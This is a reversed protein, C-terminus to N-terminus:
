KVMIEYCVAQNKGNQKAHYMANDAMDIMKEYRKNDTTYGLSVTVVGSPTDDRLIQQDRVLQVLEQAIQDAPKEGSFRIGLMEEGGYRYFIMDNKIGYDNLAMGIRKLCEDGYTHGYRDNLRKFNDIDMMFLATIPQRRGSLVDQFMEFMDQRSHLATLFDTRRDYDAQKFNDLAQSLDENIRQMETNVYKIKKVYVLVIVAILLIVALVAGVYLLFQKRHAHIYEGPSLDQISTVMYKQITSQISVDTLLILNKNLISCLEHPLNQNVAIHMGYSLNQLLEYSLTDSKDENVLWKGTFYELYAADAEGTKVAEIVDKATPYKVVTKGAIPIKQQYTATVPVAIKGTNNDADEKFIKAVYNTLYVDTMLYGMSEAYSDTGVMAPFIDAKGQEFIRKYDQPSDAAVFEYDLGTEDMLCRVIDPIIGVIEGDKIFCYPQSDPIFYVQLKEESKKYDELFSKEKESYIIESLPQVSYNNYHLNNRWDGEYIDMQSIGYNIKSLLEENGKKVAAYFKTVGLEEVIREHGLKRLNSSVIADVKGNELADTLEEQNEFMVSVYQFNHEEAYEQFVENRSSNLLLGVKIGDYDAYNEATITTNDNRVTMITSSLGIYVSFDYQEAREKTYHVSTLMDIEGDQLMRQMDDWSKDYGVYEFNLGTYRSLLRLFQYGYGSRAGTDSIDHYGDFHFFGVRVTSVDYKEDAYAMTMAIGCFLVTVMILMAFFVKIIKNIRNNISVRLLDNQKINMDDV